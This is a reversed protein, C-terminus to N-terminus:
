VNEIIIKSFHQDLGIVLCRGGEAIGTIQVTPRQMPEWRKQTHGEQTSRKDKMKM